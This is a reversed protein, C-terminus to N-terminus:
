IQEYSRAGGKPRQSELHFSKKSFLSNLIFHKVTFYKLM